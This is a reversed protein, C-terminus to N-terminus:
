KFDKNITSFVANLEVPYDPAKGASDQAKALSAALTKAKGFRFTLANKLIAGFIRRNRGRSSQKDQLNAFNFRVYDGNTLDFSPDLAPAAHLKAKFSPAQFILYGNRWIKLGLDLLTFQKSDYEDPVIERELTMDRNLIFCFYKPYLSSLAAGKIDIAITEIFGGSVSAKVINPVPEDLEDVLAPIIAGYDSQTLYASLLDPDINTLTLQEDIFLIDKSLSEKAALWIAERIGIKEQPLLVRLMPIAQLLKDYQYGERDINVLIMEVKHKTNSLYNFVSNITDVPDSLKGVILVISLDTRMKAGGKRVNFNSLETYVPLNM